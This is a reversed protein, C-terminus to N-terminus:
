LEDPEDLGLRYVDRVSKVEQEASYADHARCPSVRQRYKTEALEKAYPNRRRKESKLVM